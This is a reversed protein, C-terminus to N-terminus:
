KPLNEATVDTKAIIEATRPVGLAYIDEPGTQPYEFRVDTDEIIKGNLTIKVQMAMEGSKYWTVVYNRGKIWKAAANPNTVMINQSILLGSISIFILVFLLIKKM